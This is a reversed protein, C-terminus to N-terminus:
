TRIKSCQLQLISKFCIRYVMSNLSFEYYCSCSCSVAPVAGPGDARSQHRPKKLAVVKGNFIGKFLNSGVTMREPHPSYVIDRLRSRTPIIGTNTTIKVM